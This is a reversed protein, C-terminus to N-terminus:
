WLQKPLEIFSLTSGHYLTKVQFFTDNVTQKSCKEIEHAFQKTCHSKTMKTRLQHKKQESFCVTILNDSETDSITQINDWITPYQRRKQINKHKNVNYM